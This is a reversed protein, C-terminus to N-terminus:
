RRQRWPVASIENSEWPIVSRLLFVEIHWGPRSPGWRKSPWALEGPMSRKILAFDNKSRKDSRKKSLGGEGDALLEQNGRNQPELRCYANGVKEFSDIDFYVNGQETQYAFGKEIIKEVFKNIQPVFETVRTIEDPDLVNLAHMDEFFLNEYHQTLQVFIAKATLMIM